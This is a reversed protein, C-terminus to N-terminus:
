SQADRELILPHFERDEQMMRTGLELFMARSEAVFRAADKEIAGAELWRASYALYREQIEDRAALFRTALGRLELDRHAMLFPYFSRDEMATHVKLIGSLSQLHRRIVAAEVEVRGAELRPVIEMTVKTLERHQRKLNDIINRVIRIRGAGSVPDHAAVTSTCTASACPSRVRRACVGTNGYFRM